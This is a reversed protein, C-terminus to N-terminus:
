TEFGCYYTWQLQNHCYISEGCLAPCGPECFDNPADDCHNVDVCYVREQCMPTAADVVSPRSLRWGALGCLVLSSILMRRTNTM